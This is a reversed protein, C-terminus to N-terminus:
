LARGAPVRPQLLQSATFWAVARLTMAASLVILAQLHLAQAQYAHPDALAARYTSLERELKARYSERFAPSMRAYRLSLANLSQPLSRYLWGVLAFAFVDVLIPVVDM